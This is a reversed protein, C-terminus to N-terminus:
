LGVPGQGAGQPAGPLNMGPPAGPLNGGPLGMGPAGFGGPGGFGGFGGGGGGGTASLTATPDPTRLDRPITMAVTVVSADPMAGRPGPATGFGGVGTFGTVSGRALFYELRQMPDDPIQAEGPRIPRGTQDFETLAPVFPSTIQYGSRSVSIAGPFRLLALMLDAYEQHTKVTGSMTVTANQEGIPQASMSIVRFFSPVYRRVEDYLDAYVTNHAKMADALLINKVLQQADPGNLLADAKAAEDVVAQARPRLEENRERAKALEGASYVNLLVAVAISAISILAMLVWAVRTAKEKGVYTPLLNLKM